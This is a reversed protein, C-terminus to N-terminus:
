QLRRWMKKIRNYDYYSIVVSGIEIKPLDALPGTYVVIKDADYAVCMAKPIKESPYINVM